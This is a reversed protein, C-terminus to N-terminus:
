LNRLNIAHTVGYDLTYMDEWGIRGRECAKRYKMVLQKEPETLEDVNELLTFKDVVMKWIVEVERYDM